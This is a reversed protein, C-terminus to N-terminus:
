GDGGLVRDAPSAYQELSVMVAEVAINLVFRFSRLMAM